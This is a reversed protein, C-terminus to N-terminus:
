YFSCIGKSPKRFSGSNPRARPFWTLVKPGRCFLFRIRSSTGKSALLLSTLRDLSFGKRITNIVSVLIDLTKLFVFFYAVYLSTRKCTFSSLRFIINGVNLDEKMSRTYKSNITYSYITNEYTTVPWSWRAVSALLGM